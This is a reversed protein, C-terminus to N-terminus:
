TEEVEIGYVTVTIATVVGAKAILAADSGRLILGGDTYLKEVTTNAAIAVGKALAFSDGSTAGVPNVWLSYTTAGSSVNAIVVTKVVAYFSTSPPRYLITDSTTVLHRQALQKWTEKKPM